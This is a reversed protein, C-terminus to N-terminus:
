LGVCAMQYDKVAAAFGAAFAPVVAQAGFVGGGAGAAFDFYDPASCSSKLLRAEGIQISFSM